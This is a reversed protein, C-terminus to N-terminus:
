RGRMIYKLGSQWANDTDSEITFCFIGENVNSNGDIHWPSDGGSFDGNTILNSGLHSATTATEIPTFTSTSTPKSSM